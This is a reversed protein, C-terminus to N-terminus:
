VNAPILKPHYPQLASKIKEAALRSFKKAYASGLVALNDAETGSATFIVTAGKVGLSTQIESRTNNIIKEAEYGMSHVSSPNGWSSRSVEIYRELAEDCIKTTASNDLYIM